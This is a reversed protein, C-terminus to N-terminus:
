IHETPMILMIIVIITITRLLTETQYIQENQNREEIKASTQNKKKVQYFAGPKLMCM